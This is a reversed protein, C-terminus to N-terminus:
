VILLAHTCMWRKRLVDDYRTEKVTTRPSHDKSHMMIYPCGAEAIVAFMEPDGRGATIDNIMDAGAKLAQRSVEAKYTDVSVRIGLGQNRIGRIIPTVRRLEEEVGVDGSGPGTSEGGIDIIDAGETVMESAHHAARGQNAHWGRDYFSDPTVNLIGMIAPTKAFDVM